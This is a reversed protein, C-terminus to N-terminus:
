RAPARDPAPAPQVRVGRRQATRRTSVGDDEDDDDGGCALIRIVDDLSLGTANARRIVYLARERSGAYAMICERVTLGEARCREAAGCEEAVPVCQTCGDRTVLEPEFGPACLIPTDPGASGAPCEISDREPAVLYCHPERPALCTTGERCQRDSHCRDGTSWFGNICILGRRLEGRECPILEIGEEADDGRERSGIADPRAGARRADAGRLDQTTEDLSENQSTYEDFETGCGIALVAILSFIWTREIQLFKM